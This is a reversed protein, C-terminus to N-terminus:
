NKKNFYSKIKELFSKERVYGMINIPRFFPCGNDDYCDVYPCFESYEDVEYTKLGTKCNQCLQIKDKLIMKTM